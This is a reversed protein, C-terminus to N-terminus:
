DIYVTFVILLVGLIAGPIDTGLVSGSLEILKLLLCVLGFAHIVGYVFDAM